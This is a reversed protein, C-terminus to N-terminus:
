TREIELPLGAAKLYTGLRYFNGSAQVTVTIPGEWDWRMELGNEVTSLVPAIESWVLWMGLTSASSIKVWRSNWPYMKRQWGSATTSSQLTLAAGTAYWRQTGSLVTIYRGLPIPSHQCHSSISKRRGLSPAYNSWLRTMAVLLMRHLPISCHRPSRRLRSKIDATTAMVSLRLMASIPARDM